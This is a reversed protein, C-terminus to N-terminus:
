KKILQINLDASGSFGEIQAENTYQWLEFHYPTQPYPEYDAYWVPYEKLVEMDFEYAEWLMNSYIMPEYGAKKIENCFAITNKTFQEGSINDTRSDDDLISEPDYVVPLDLDRGKLNELVFNAEEIAETENIAQAFFYVGVDIGADKANKINKEFQADLNVSGTKGYGRYGIRIIAFEFGQEKIKQWDIDGQHESVDIGSRYTYVDDDYTLIDGDFVFSKDDYQKTPVNPNIEVQYKEGYVDVFDLIEPEEKKPEEVKEDENTKEDITNTAVTENENQKEDSSCSTLALINIALIAIILKKM